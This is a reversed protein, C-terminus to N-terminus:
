AGSVSQLGARQRGELWATFETPQLPECYLYGQLLDCGHQRLREAQAPTEIGEAVIRLSLAHGMDIIANVLADVRPHEESKVIFERDIKLVDVPLQYLLRLSTTGIGFDDIAITIGADRLRTLKDLMQESPQIFLRETLELQVQGASLGAAELIGLLDDVFSSCRIELASVNISLRPPKPGSTALVQQVFARASARTMLRGLEGIMGCDEAVPIFTSPPVMGKTSHRWRALAELGVVEGTQADVIAQFAPTIREDSIAKRLETELFLRSDDFVEHNKDFFRHTNRGAHKASYLAIDAKRILEGKTESDDPFMSIGISATVTIEQEALSIPAALANRLKRIVLSADGPSHLNNLVMTFEDGGMRAVTDSARVSQTIRNSVIKLLEDGSQHGLSDNIRKFHDLDVFVVGVQRNNRAAQHLAQQLREQFLLRNPLGTLADYHALRHLHAQKRKTVESLLDQANGIGAFNGSEDVVLFGNLLQQLGAAVLKQALDDVDTRVDVIIPNSDMFRSIPYRGFLDRHYPRSFMEVMSNRNVLGVPIEDNVVPLIRLQEDRQFLELVEISPRNSRISRAREVIASLSPSDKRM